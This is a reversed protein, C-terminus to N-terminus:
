LAVAVKLSQVVETPEEAFLLGRTPMRQWTTHYTSTTNIITKITKRQLRSTWAVQKPVFSTDSLTSM